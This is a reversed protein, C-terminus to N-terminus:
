SYFGEDHSSYAIWYVSGTRSNRVRLRPQGNWGAAGSSLIVGSQPSGHHNWSIPDGHKWTAQTMLDIKNDLEDRREMLRKLERVSM